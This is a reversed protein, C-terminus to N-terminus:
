QIRARGGERHELLMRRSGLEGIVLDRARPNVSDTSRIKASNLCHRDNHRHGPRWRPRHRSQLLLVYGPTTPIEPSTSTDLRPHGNTHFLESIPSSVTHLGSPFLRWQNERGSTTM